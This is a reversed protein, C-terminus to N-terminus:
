LQNGKRHCYLLQWPLQHVPLLFLEQLPYQYRLTRDHLCYIDHCLLLEPQLHGRLRSSIKLYLLFCMGLNSFCSDSKYSFTTKILRTALTTFPPRRKEKAATTTTPSPFPLTPAPRPLAASTGSAIRLPTSSALFFMILTAKFFPVM